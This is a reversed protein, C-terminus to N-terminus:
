GTFLVKSWGTITLAIKDEYKGYKEQLFKWKILQMVKVILIGSIVATFIGEVLKKNKM